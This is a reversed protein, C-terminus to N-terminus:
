KDRLLPGFGPPVMDGEIGTMQGPEYQLFLAFRLVADLGPLLYYVTWQDHLAMWRGDESVFYIADNGLAVPCAAETFCRRVYPLLDAEMQDLAYEADFRLQRKDKSYLTLGSFSRLVREAAPHITIGVRSLATRADDVPVDREPTWGAARLIVMVEEGPSGIVGPM